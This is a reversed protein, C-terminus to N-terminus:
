NIWFTHTRSATNNCRDTVHIEVRHKGPSLPNDPKYFLLLKEPDYEAIVKKGDLKLVRNSEGAIGAREDKFVARLQPRTTSVQAGDSPSLAMIVPSTTDQAVCFTGLSGVHATLTNHEYNHKSGAFRLKNRWMSYIALKGTNPAQEPYEITLTAGKDMPVDRPFLEYVRGVLGDIDPDREKFQTRVYYDKFLSGSSFSLRCMGDKTTVSKAADKPVTTFDLWANQIVDEGNQDRYFLRLPVPGEEQSSLPWAGVFRGKKRILPVAYQKGTPLWGTVKLNYIPITAFFALRVYRDYYETVMEVPSSNSNDATANIEHDEILATEAIMSDLSMSAPNYDVYLDGNTVNVKGTVVATNGWFDSVTIRYEHEGSPLPAVGAPLDLVPKLIHEANRNLFPSQNFDLVGYYVDRKPYFYLQNGYDRFLNYFYGNGNVLQRHDRDLKFHNNQSYSFKDYRARFILKDDVYLENLYTGFKNPIDGMQDYASVGFSVRGSVQVTKDIRYRHNGLSVPWLILPRVDRNVTSLADMPMIQLKTIFPALDDDVRYGRTHPNVPRHSPDRMEFHLHPFGVGSQGTYGVLEGKKVPFQSSKPYLNVAFRNQKQQQSKVYDTIEPTFSKLHGYVVHEGTDLTLYIARGYGFPSVRIRSIHGDRIAYVKYGTQGWTKIDIGAHFRGSRSEAFSSTLAHSADTPWLYQPEESEQTIGHTIILFYFIITLVYKM